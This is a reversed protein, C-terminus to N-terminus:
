DRSVDSREPEEPIPLVPPEVDPVFVPDRDPVPPPEWFV